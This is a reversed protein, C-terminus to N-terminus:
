AAQEARNLLTYHLRAFKGLARVVYDVILLLLAGGGVGLGLLGFGSLIRAFYHASLGHDFAFLKAVLAIGAICLAIQVIAAALVFIAFGAILPLLFVFDVTILALFGVLAGLFNGPTRAEEWRRLGAEARLERALRLPDGLAAAIEEESRGAAMGEAFHTAYDGVLDDIETPPLGALRRRLTDLFQARTM